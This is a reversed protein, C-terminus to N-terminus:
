LKVWEQEPALAKDAIAFAVTGGGSTRNIEAVQIDRLAREYREAKEAATLLQPLANRMACIFEADDLVGEDYAVIRKPSQINFFYDIYWPSPTAKDLLERLEKIVDALPPTTTM